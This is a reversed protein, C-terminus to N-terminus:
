AACAFGLVWLTRQSQHGANIRRGTTAWSFVQEPLSGGIAVRDAHHTNLVVFNQQRLRPDGGGAIGHSATELQRAKLLLDERERGYPLREAQRKFAEAQERWRQEPSLKKTGM